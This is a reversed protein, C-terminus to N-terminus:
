DYPVIRHVYKITLTATLPRAIVQRDPFRFRSLPDVTYGSNWVVFIDDGIVPIWHFRLDFDTRNLADDYQAFGLFDARTSFAYEMRSTGQVAVFHGVPLWVETRTLGAGLMLHGRSRWTLGADSETSHGNYFTGTSVFAFGSVPRGLSTEYQAGVQTWWYTGAHITVGRFVTFTDPPADMLRQVQFHFVDGNDLTGGVPHWEILANQWDRANALSGNHNAYIDWSPIEFEFQRIGLIHPRPMFDIHGNTEWVDTRRIFGLTPAFGSDYRAISVFNDFLDNPFDTGLRWAVRTGATDPTQTGAVWLQPEINQEGIKLPFDADLGAAVDSGHVSSGSRETLIAGLYSRDFLDHKIRVVADNADDAGGTRTDMVGVTWPGAKGTLRAGALIPVFAGSDTLGIRRSYFLLARESSGFDFIGSSELFFTRKEPFFTPFRTLNIVQSDVEVQAFDTNVTLDATMTGTVALKADVGVKGAVGAGGIRNGVSDHPAQFADGLVYPLIAIDRARSAGGLGSLEGESALQYLGETHKWGTWLDEENKRRIFRRINFGFAATEGAAFRLTRFPIRFTATWGASDRVTTVTWIGNWDQNVNDGETIQADWQAGHPNTQFLFGGRRDHFSDILITVNDDSSLDADRRLQMSRIRAADSDWARIKVYLADHDRLVKVTTRESAPAGEAPDRQRLETISDATAWPLPTSEVAHATIQAHLAPVLALALLPLTKLYQM